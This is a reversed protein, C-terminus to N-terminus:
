GTDYSSSTSFFLHLSAPWLGYGCGFQPRCFFRAMSSSSRYLSITVKLRTSSDEPVVFEGFRIFFIVIILHALKPEIALSFPLALSSVFSLACVKFAGCFSRSSSSSTKRSLMSFDFKLRLAIFQCSHHLCHFFTM